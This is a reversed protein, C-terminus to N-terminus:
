SPPPEDAPAEREGLFQALAEDLDSEPPVAGDPTVANVVQPLAAAIGAATEERTLGAEAALRDLEDEGLATTIERGSVPQNRGTLVWSTTQTSLGGADLRRLLAGLGADKDGGSHLLGLVVKLLSGDSGPGGQHAAAM